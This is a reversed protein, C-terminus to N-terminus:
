TSTTPEDPKSRTLQVLYLVIYGILAALSLLFPYLVWWRVSTLDGPGAAMFWLPVVVGAVTFVILIIVGWWLRTDPRVIEAHEQELRLLEAELDEVQQEARAHDARLGDSRRAAIVGYDTRPPALAAAMSVNRRQAGAMANLQDLEREFPAKPPAARRRAEEEAAAKM